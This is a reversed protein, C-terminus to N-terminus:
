AAAPGDPATLTEACILPLGTQRSAAKASEIAMHRSTFTRSTAGNWRPDFGLIRTRWGDAVQEIILKRFLRRPLHSLQPESPNETPHRREGGHVAPAGVHPEQRM